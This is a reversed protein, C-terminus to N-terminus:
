ELCVKLMNDIQAREAAYYTYSSTRAGLVLMDIDDSLTVGAFDKWIECGQKPDSQRAMAERVERFTGLIREYKCSFPRPDQAHSLHM